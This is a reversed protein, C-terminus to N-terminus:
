TGADPETRRLGPERELLALVDAQRFAPNAPYLAQYVREAFAFDEPEDVTWRLDSRDPQQTVAQLRFTEPRRYIGITVHEREEADPGLARMARLADAEVAEVDLGRPYSREIANSTYDAGSELHTRVILDLVDPDTLPNDATLRVVVDPDYEDVVQLFRALVDDLSGRRVDVGAAAVTAALEDDSPDTSTAVVLADLTSAQALRELERVIMPEGLLPMLVKGPLRTSGTRAQLIGLIVAAPEL